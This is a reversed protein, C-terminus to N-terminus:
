GLSRSRTAQPARRGSCPHSGRRPDPVRVEELATIDPGTLVVASVIEGEELDLRFAMPTGAVTADLDVHRLWHRVRTQLADRWTGRLCWTVLELVSSKGRFNSAVFATLGESFYLPTDFPGPQVDGTREGALRLRHLRLPRARAPTVVLPLGYAAFVDRVDDVPVGAKKAIRDELAVEAQPASM